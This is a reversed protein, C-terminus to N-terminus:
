QTHLPCLVTIIICTVYTATQLGPLDRQLYENNESKLYTNAKTAKYPEFKLHNLHM